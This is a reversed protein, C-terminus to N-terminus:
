KGRKKTTNKNDTLVRQRHHRGLLQPPQHGAVRVEGSQVELAGEDGLCLHPAPSEKQVCIGIKEGPQTCLM